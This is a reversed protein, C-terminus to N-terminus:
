FPPLVDMALMTIDDAPKRGDVFEKVDNIIAETLHDIGWKNYKQITSKLRKISYENNSSDRAEVLGDTYLLLKDGPFLLIQRNVFKPKLLSGLKCIVFGDNELEQISGDPRIRLPSTNLGGSAYSLIGTQTNFVGYIMVIYMDDNFNASNFSEYLHTLVMSPISIAEGATEEMLSQMKQFTFISLMAASVGHGSVDGVCIGFRTDDIKFVNYFDGSLKEAPVYGASFSVFENEPLGSPLMSLQIGRAIEQDAMLKEYMGRLEITRSDVLKDMEKLYEDLDEKAKSLQTYPKKVNEIYFAYFLIGYSVAMYFQSLVTNLDFIRNTGIFAAESFFMLIFGYCLLKLVFENTKIYQRLNFCFTYIYLLASVGLLCISFVTLGSDNILHEQKILPSSLISYIVIVTIIVAVCMYRRKIVYKNTFKFTTLVCFCIANIIRIILCLLLVCRPSSIGYEPGLYFPIDLIQIWYLIGGTLFTFGVILLRNEKTQPYTYFSILFISFSVILLYVEFIRYWINNDTLLQSILFKSDSLEVTLYLLFSFAITILISFYRGKVDFLSSGSKTSKM